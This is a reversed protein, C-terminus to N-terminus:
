RMAPGVIVFSGLVIFSWGLPLVLEKFFPFTLSSAFPERGLSVL